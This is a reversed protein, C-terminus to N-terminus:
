SRGSREAARNRVFALQLPRPDYDKLAALTSDEEFDYCIM